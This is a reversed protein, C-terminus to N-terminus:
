HEGQTRIEDVPMRAVYRQELCVPDFRLDVVSVRLSERRPEQPGQGGRVGPREDRHLCRAPRGACRRRGHRRQINCRDHPFPGASLAGTLVITKGEIGMLAAATEPMTDTGHTIVYRNTDDDVIYDRLMTRDADTLELSDKHFLSVVDYDFKVLGESLIHQVQAEGVEFQSLQDFYIKDITGGTTIFRIFM